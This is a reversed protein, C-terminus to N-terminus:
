RPELFVMRGSVVVCTGPAIDYVPGAYYAFSGRDVSGESGTAQITVVMESATGVFARKLLVACNMRAAGNWTVYLQGYLTGGSTRVDVVGGSVLDYGSGCVRYTYPNEAATATGGFAVLSVVAAVVAKGLGRM